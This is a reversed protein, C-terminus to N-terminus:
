AGWTEAPMCAALSGTPGLELTVDRQCAPRNATQGSLTVTRRWWPQGSVAVGLSVLPGLAFSPEQQLPDTAKGGFSASRALRMHDHPSQQRRGIFSPARAEPQGHEHLTASAVGFSTLATTHKPTPAGPKPSEAPLRVKRAAHNPASAQPSTPQPHREDNAHGSGGGLHVM